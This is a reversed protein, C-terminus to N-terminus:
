EEKKGFVSFHVYRKPRAKLDKMLENASNATESLNNYLTPDNMFKGLTGQPNQMQAIMNNVNNSDFFEYRLDLNYNYGNKLDANGRIQSSGYSEQYLFPAM